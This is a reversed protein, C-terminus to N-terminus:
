SKQIFVDLVEASRYNGLGSEAKLNYNLQLFGHGKTQVPSNLYSAIKSRAEAGGGARKGTSILQTSRPTIKIKNKKPPPMISQNPIQVRALPISSHGGPIQSQMLIAALHALSHAHSDEQITNSVVSCCHIYRILKVHRYSVDDIQSQM